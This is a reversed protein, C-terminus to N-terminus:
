HLACWQRWLKPPVRGALAAPQALVAERPRTEVPLVVPLRGLLGVLEGGLDPQSLGGALEADVAVGELGGEGLPAQRRQPSSQSAAWGSAFSRPM